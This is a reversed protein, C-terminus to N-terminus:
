NNVDNLKAAKFQMFYYSSKFTVKQFIITFVYPTIYSLFSFRCSLDLGWIGCGAQPNRSPLPTIITCFSVSEVHGRHLRSATGYAMGLFRGGCFLFLSFYRCCSLADLENWRENLRDGVHECMHEFSLLRLFCIMWFKPCPATSVLEQKICLRRGCFPFHECILCQICCVEAPSKLESYSSFLLHCWSYHICRSHFALAISFGM